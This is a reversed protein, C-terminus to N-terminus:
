ASATPSWSTPGATSTRGSGSSSAKMGADGRPGVPFPSPGCNGTVETTVGQYAKSDGAPKDLLSVDSHSHMDIFGPAVVLGSGDIVRGAGAEDLRGITEIKGHDIGLDAKHRLRGTGDIITGNKILLDFSM